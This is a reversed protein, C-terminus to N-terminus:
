GALCAWFFRALGFETVGMTVATPAFYPGPTLALLFIALAGKKHAFNLAREIGVRKFFRSLRSSYREGTPDTQVLSTLFRGGRSGASYLIVAGITHGVGAIVGVLAPNLIGGFTFVIVMFPIPVLAVSGSIVAILFIGVYGLHELGTLVSLHYVLLVSGAIIGGLILGFAIYKKKNSGAPVAAVPNENPVSCCNKM